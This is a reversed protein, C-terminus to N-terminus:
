KNGKTGRPLSPNSTKHESLMNKGTAYVERATVNRMLPANKGDVGKRSTYNRQDSIGKPM